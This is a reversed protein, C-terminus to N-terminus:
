ATGRELRTGGHVPRARWGEPVATDGQTLADPGLAGTTDDHRAYLQTVHGPGQPAIGYRAEYAAHYDAQLREPRARDIAVDLEPMRPRPAIRAHLSTADAGGTEADSGRAFDALLAATLDALPADVRQFHESRRPARALGVAGALTPLDPLTVSALGLAEAIGTALLAGAGGTVVLGARSPDVNRSTAHRTIAEALYGHARSLLAGADAVASGPTGPILGASILADDLTPGGGGPVPQAGGIALSEIDARVGRLPLGALVGGETLAPAGGRILAIDTTRSGIDLAVADGEVAVAAARISAAPGGAVLPVLSRPADVLVGRGDGWTWRGTFGAAQLRGQLATLDPLATIRLWADLVTSVTREFERPEPDVRHSLSVTLGPSHAALAEAVAAEHRGDVHAHLLCVAVAKIGRAALDGAIRAVQAPDVPALERGAFDMRASIGHVAAEDILHAPTAVRTVPDYLAVRDQRGLIAVDEFGATAILGIRPGDGAGQADHLRNLFGTSALRLERIGTPAVGLRDLGALVNGALDGSVPQKFARTRGDGWGLMDIFRAGIDVGLRTM